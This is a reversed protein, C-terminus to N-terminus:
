GKTKRFREEFNMITLGVLEGAWPDYRILNGDDTEECYAIKPSNFAIYLIDARDDYDIVLRNIKSM